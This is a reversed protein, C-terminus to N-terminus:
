EQEAQEAKETISKVRTIERATLVNDADLIIVVKNGVKGIGLIFRTDLKVGFEPTDEIQGTDIDM